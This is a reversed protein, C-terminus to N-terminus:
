FAVMVDTDQGPLKGAYRVPSVGAVHNAGGLSALIVPGTFGEGAPGQAEGSTSSAAGFADEFCTKVQCNEVSRM